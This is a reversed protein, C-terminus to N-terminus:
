ETKNFHLWGFSRVLGYYMGAQIKMARRKVGKFMDADRKMAAYFKQDCVKRRAASGGKAYGEDHKNCSAEFFWDFLVSNVKKPLWGPGCGNSM